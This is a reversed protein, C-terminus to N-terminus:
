TKSATSVLSRQSELEIELTQVQRRLDNADARAGQLAETSQTMKVQVETIQVSSLHSFFLCSFIEGSKPMESFRALSVFQISHSYCSYIAIYDCPCTNLYLETKYRHNM